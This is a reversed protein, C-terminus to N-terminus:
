FTLVQVDELNPISNSCPTNKIIQPISVAIVFAASDTGSILCAHHSDRVTWYM